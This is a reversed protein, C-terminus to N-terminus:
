IWVMNNEQPKPFISFPDSEQVPATSATEGSSLTVDEAKTGGRPKKEKKKQLPKEDDATKEGLLEKLQADM